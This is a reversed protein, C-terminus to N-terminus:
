SCPPWMAVEMGKAKACDVLQEAHAACVYLDAVMPSGIADLATLPHPVAKSVSLSALRLSLTTPM